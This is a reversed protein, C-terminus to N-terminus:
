FNEAASSAVRQAFSMVFNLKSNFISIFSPRSIFFYFREDSQLLRKMRTHSVLSEEVKSIQRLGTTSLKTMGVDLKEWVTKEQLAALEIEQGGISNM